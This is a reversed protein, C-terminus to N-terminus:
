STGLDAHSFSYKGRVPSDGPSHANYPGFYGTSDINGVPKPNTLIAHFQMPQNAGVSTMRLKSIEFDLPVKGPKSPKM